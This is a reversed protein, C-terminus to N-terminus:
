SYGKTHIYVAHNLAKHEFKLLNSHLYNPLSFTFTIQNVVTESNCHKLSETKVKRETAHEHPLAKM